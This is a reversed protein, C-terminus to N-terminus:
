GATPRWRQLRLANTLVTLSSAIMAIAAVIPEFQGNEGFLWQLGAPVEGVADFIPVAVGAALPILLVNYAFAFALNQRVVRRADRALLIAWAAREPDSQMLTVQAAELAIDSGSRMAFGVDAQALAAADNVGDGVMAVVDGEAQMRAIHEAKEEPLVRAHVDSIGVADAVVQAAPEADGSILTSAIGKSRLLSVARRATPKIQDALRIVGILERERAVYVGTDATSHLSDLGIGLDSMLRASGVAIECDDVTAVAGRGPRARFGNATRTAFQLENAHETIARGLPHESQAEVAAAVALLEKTDGSLAECGVVEHRATTLTGTKDFVVRTIRGATELAEADRVLVGMRAARGSGAAVAAPTALGLACPCAVVLVAVASLLAATFAPDPGFAAWLAFTLVAVLVVAPVFVSSIQDALRQVPAKSAQARSVAATIRALATQEGIQTARYELAGDLNITGAFVTDGHSKEAPISEGTLLAEDVASEGDVVVGDVAIQEGPRVRLLDDIRVNAVATEREVGAEVVRASQPALELLQTLAAVARRRIRAEVARGLSVFGVIILATDFFVDRSAGSEAFANPALTAAVSYAWAALAGLAILTDMDARRALAALAARRLIPAACWFLVPTTVVLLVPFLTGVSWNFEAWRNVQMAIFVGWGVALAPVSRALQRRFEAADSAADPTDADADASGTLQYGAKAIAEELAGTDPPRELEIVARGALFDASAEAVGDVRTLAREVRRVCAACHMGEIQLTQTESAAM